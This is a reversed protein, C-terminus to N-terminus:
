ARVNCCETKAIIYKVSYQQQAREILLEFAAKMIGKGQYQPLLTGGIEIEQKSANWDHLACDGIIIDPADVLRISFIDNCRSIIYRTFELPTKNGTVASGNKDETHYLHYFMLADEDNLLKLIINGKSLQITM